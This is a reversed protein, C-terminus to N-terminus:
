CAGFSVGIRPMKVSNAFASNAYWMVGGSAIHCLFAIMLIAKYGLRDTILSALLIVGGFGALGMGSIQGLETNTFGFKAGWLGLIEGRCGFGIGAAILTLFSAVFISTKKSQEDM